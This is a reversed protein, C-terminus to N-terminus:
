AGHRWCVLHQQKAGQYSTLSADRLYHKSRRDVLGYAVPSLTRSALNAQPTTPSVRRDIQNSADLMTRSHSSARIKRAETPSPPLARRRFCFPDPADQNHRVLRESPTLDGLPKTTRLKESGPTAHDRLPVFRDLARLSSSRCGVLGTNDSGHRRHTTKRDPLVPFSDTRSMQRRSLVRPLGTSKKRIFSPSNTFEPESEDHMSDEPRSEESSNGDYSHLSVSQLRTSLSLSTRSQRRKPTSRTPSTEVSGYGSDASRGTCPSSELCLQQMRPTIPPNPHTM